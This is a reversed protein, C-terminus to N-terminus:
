GRFSILRDVDLSLEWLFQLERASNDVLCRSVSAESIKVRRALEAQTPRPLLQPTGTRDRTDVAHDRASKVHEMMERTLAEIHAMRAGRKKQPAVKKPGDAFGADILRSEVYEVDFAFSEGDFTLVADLPIVLNAAISEWRKMSLVTPFFLVSKPRRLMEAVIARDDFRRFARVFYVERSRGAWTARGIRWLRNGIPEGLTVAAGGSSFSARLFEPVNVAWRQLQEPAIEVPGCEPCSIYGRRNGTRKDALFTVHRLHDGGCELCSASAASTTAQLINAAQLQRLRDGFGRSLEDAHFVPPDVELRRLLLNLPEDV